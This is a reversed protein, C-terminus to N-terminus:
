ESETKEVRVRKEKGHERREVRSVGKKAGQENM